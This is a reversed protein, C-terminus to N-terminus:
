EKNQFFAAQEGTASSSAPAGESASAAVPPLPLLHRCSATGTKPTLSVPVRQFTRVANSALKHEALSHMLCSQECGVLYPQKTSLLICICAVSVPAATLLEFVPLEQRTHLLEQKHKAARDLVGTVGGCGRTGACSGILVPLLNCTSSSDTFLESFTYYGLEAARMTVILVDDASWSRHVTLKLLQGELDTGGLVNSSIRISAALASGQSRAM